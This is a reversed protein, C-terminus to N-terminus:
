FPLEEKMSPLDLNVDDGSQDPVFWMYVVKGRVRKRTDGGGIQKIRAGM